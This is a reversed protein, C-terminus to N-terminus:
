TTSFNRKRDAGDLSVTPMLKLSTKMPMDFVLVYPVHVYFGLCGLSVAFDFTGVSRILCLKILQEGVRIVNIEIRLQLCPLVEVVIISRM